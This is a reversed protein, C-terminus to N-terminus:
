RVRILPHPSDSTDYYFVADEGACRTYIIKTDYYDSTSGDLETMRVIKGDMGWAMMRIAVLDEVDVVPLTHLFELTKDQSYTTYMVEYGGDSAKDLTNMRRGLLAYYMPNGTLQLGM